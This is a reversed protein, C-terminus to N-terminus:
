IIGQASLVIQAIIASGVFTGFMVFCVVVLGKIGIRKFEAWNKAMGAGAFALCVTSLALMNIKSVYENVFPAIPSWKCSIAMGIITVYLVYSVKVPVVMSLLQGAFAVGLIILVGPISELIPVGYGVFNGITGIFSVIILILLMNGVKDMSISAKKEGYESM